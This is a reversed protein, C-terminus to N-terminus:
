AAELGCVAIWDEAEEDSIHGHELAIMIRAKKEADSPAVDILTLILSRAIAGFPRADGPRRFPLVEAM